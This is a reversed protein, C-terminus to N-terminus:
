PTAPPQKEECLKQFAPDSRLPDWIPDLRLLAPTLVAVGPYLNSDHPTKLLQPLADIARSKEGVITQILALNEELGPGWVRDKASPLLVIAQEAAKLASEKEGLMAYAQSLRAAFFENDPQDRFLQELTNLAQEATVKAGASDGALGQTFAVSIQCVAKSYQSDFHFQALRAQLLRVAESYNRELRLQTVKTLFVNDSDTQTNLNELLKSAEHLNGQAQYINVKLTMVEPDNPTIDLVRDYLKLAAPFKRLEAYATAADM